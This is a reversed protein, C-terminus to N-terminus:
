SGDLVVASAVVRVAGANTMEGAILEATARDVVPLWVEFRGAVAEGGVGAMPLLPALRDQLNFAMTRYEDESWPVQIVCAEAGAAELARRHPEPDDTM